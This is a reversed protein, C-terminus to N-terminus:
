GHPSGPEDPEKAGAKLRANLLNPPIAVARKIQKGVTSLTEVDGRSNQRNARGPQMEASNRQERVEGGIPLNSSSGPSAAGGKPKVNPPEALVSVVNFNTLMM